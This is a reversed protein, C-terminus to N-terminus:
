FLSSLSLLLLLFLLLLSLVVEEVVVVLLLLTPLTIVTIILASIITDIIFPANKPTPLTRQLEPRSNRMFMLM